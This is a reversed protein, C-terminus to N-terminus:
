LLIQVHFPWVAATIDTSVVGVTTNTHGTRSLNGVSVTVKKTRRHETRGTKRETGERKGLATGKGGSGASLQIVHILAAGAVPQWVFDHKTEDKAVATHYPGSAYCLHCSNGFTWTNLWIHVHVAFVQAHQRRSVRIAYFYDSVSPQPCVNTLLGRTLAHTCMHVTVHLMRRCSHLRRHRNWLNYISITESVMMSSCHSSVSEWQSASYQIKAGGGKFFFFDIFPKIM